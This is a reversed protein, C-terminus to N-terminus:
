SGDYVNAKWWKYMASALAEYCTDRVATHLGAHAKIMGEENIKPELSWHIHHRKCVIILCDVSEPLNNTNSWRKFEEHKM